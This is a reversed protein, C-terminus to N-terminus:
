NEKELEELEDLEKQTIEKPALENLVEETENDNHMQKRVLDETIEESSKGQYHSTHQAMWNECGFIAAPEVKSNKWQIEYTYKGDLGHKPPFITEFEWEKVTMQENDLKEQIKRKMYRVYKLRDSHSYHPRESMLLFSFHCEYRIKDDSRYLCLMKMFSKDKEELM